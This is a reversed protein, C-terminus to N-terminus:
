IDRDESGGTTGLARQQDATYYPDNPTWVPYAIGNLEAYEVNQNRQYTALAQAATGAVRMVKVDFRQSGGVVQGRAQGHAAAQANAATGPRFKVM